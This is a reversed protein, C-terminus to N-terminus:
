ASTGTRMRALQHFLELEAPRLNKPTTVNLHVLLDGKEGGQKPLGLGRLRLTDGCDSEPPIKVRVTQGGLTRLMQSGGLVATYLDVDLNYILDSDRREFFPHKDIRITIYLDGRAGGGIGPAGQGSLRLRQGDNTGPSIRVRLDQDNVAVTRQSGKVAEELSIHMEAEYDGGKRQRTTRQRQTFSQQGGFFREFFDSFGGFNEFIDEGEGSYTYYQEAGRYRDRSQDFWEEYGGAHSQQYRNFDSGMRDYKNRKEPDGLVEHAETIEKFREEAAKNGPNKDPHYQMALKRYAKKIEDTSADKTIGLIQYYDKFEM